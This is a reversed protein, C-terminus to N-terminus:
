FSTIGIRSIHNAYRNGIMDMIEKKFIFLPNGFNKNKSFESIVYNFNIWINFETGNLSFVPIEKYFVANSTNDIDILNSDFKPTMLGLVFKNNRNKNQSFDCSASIEIVIFKSAGKIKDKIEDATDKKFSFFRSFYINTEKEIKSFYPALSFIVKQFFSVEFNYEYVAGRKDTTVQSVNDIHFTSNLIGENFGNPYNIKNSKIASLFKDWVKENISNNIIRYNMIPLLAEYIARDINLKAYEIGLTKSAISSFVLDFNKDFDRNDGWPLTTSSINQPIIQFIENVTKESASNCNNEFEFLLKIPKDQFIENFRVLFEETSKGIFTNKDIADIFIPSPLDPYRDNVYVRFNSIVKTNKSWFILAFPGNDIAICNQIAFALDNFVASLNRDSTYDFTEQTLDFSKGLVKIDFFAIRVGKLPNNYSGDYLITRCGVGNSLFVKALTILEDELDDVILIKNSPDFM